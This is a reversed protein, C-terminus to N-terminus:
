QRSVEPMTMEGEQPLRSAGANANCSWGHLRSWDAVNETCGHEAQDRSLKIKAHQCQLDDVNALVIQRSINAQEQGVCWKQEAEM